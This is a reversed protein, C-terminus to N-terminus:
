AHNKKDEKKFYINLVLLVVFAAFAVGFIVDLAIFLAEYWTTVKVLKMTTTIGNMEQSNAIVYLNRHAAERLAAYLDADKSLYDRIETARIENTVAFDTTGAMVGSKAEMHTWMAMDTDAIGNFGWEHQLVNTMLGKHAGDWVVGIRNFGGMLANTANGEEYFKTFCGEFGRLYVERMTQETMFTSVGTRNMEQDNCLFHKVYTILGKKRSGRVQYAVMESSLFPDESYYEFNRGSYPTRHLNAGPAYHHHVNLWLGDEGFADGFEEVLKKNFTGAVIPETPYQPPKYDTMKDEDAFTYGAYNEFYNNKNIGTPTDQLYNLPKNISEIMAKGAKAVMTLLDEVTMQDLLQEWHPDDYNAGILMALALGNDQEAKFASTDTNESAQYTFKMGNIMKDNATLQLPKPFTGKWDSRSLYKVLDEGYSNVDIDDFQNTVLRKTNETYKFTKADTNRNDWHYTMAANGTAAAGNHDVMGTKGKAALINNLADHSDTGVSLYYDGDELIYGKNVKNDYTALQYKDVTVKVTETAGAELTDTKEFGVLQVAAKELGNAKDFDTYESQGYVQVVSKGPVKGTNKVKVTVEWSKDDNVDKVGELTQEFTTYSLGYGFPYVVEKSYDWTSGGFSAGVADTANGRGLVVDEYRTEYYKYGVYIGESYVLYKTYRDTNKDGGYAEMLVSNLAEVNSFTFDGFNQMAPASLSSAAYIDALKGSPNVAGTLLEAVAYLGYGGPGGIFLCADIGLEDLEGLEMMNSSNVLLIVKDFNDTAEKIMDKEQQQLALYQKDGDAATAPNPDAGEGGDRAVVVIAADHYDKYSNKVDATYVSMPAELINCITPMAKGFGGPNKVRTGTVGCNKYADYLVPNVSLQGNAEFQEKLDVNTGKSNSNKAKVMDVSSRGFVTVKAGKALPLVNNDNKLLAAGEAELRKAVDSNHEWVEKASTYDSEYYIPTETPEGTEVLKSGQINLFGNIKDSYQSTIVTGGISFTLLFASAVSAVRWIRRRSQKSLAM